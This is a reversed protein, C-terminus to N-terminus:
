FFVAEIKKEFASPFNPFLCEVYLLARRYIERKSDAYLIFSLTFNSPVFADCKFTKDCLARNPVLIVEAGDRM